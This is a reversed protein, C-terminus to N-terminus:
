LGYAQEPREKWAMRPLGFHHCLLPESRICDRADLVFMYGGHFRFDMETSSGEGKGAAEMIADVMGQLHALSQVPEENFTLLVSGKMKEAGANVQAAPLVNLLFVVEKRKDTVYMNELTGIFRDVGPSNLYRTYPSFALGGIVCYSFKYELPKLTKSHDYSMAKTKEVVVKGERLVTFELDEGVAVRSLEHRLTVREERGSQFAVTGDNGVTNGNIQLIVDDGKISTHYVNLEPFKQPPIFLVGTQEATMGLAKRMRPNELEQFEFKSSPHQVYTTPTRPGAGAEVRSKLIERVKLLFAQVITLPIIYGISNAAVIGAVALGVVRGDKDFVPGGSNGPNIPADIQVQLYHTQPDTTIRSVAGVTNCLGDGGMPFGSAVVKSMLEPVTNSELPQILVGEWFAKDPVDVVALDYGNNSLNGQAVVSGLYKKSDGYKEVEVQVRAHVPGVVHANTMILKQGALEFAFGSGTAGMPAAGVWPQSENRMVVQVFLKVVSKKSQNLLEEKDDEHLTNAIQRKVIDEIDFQLMNMSLDAIDVNGMTSLMSTERTLQRQLSTMRKLASASLMQHQSNARSLESLSPQGAAAM